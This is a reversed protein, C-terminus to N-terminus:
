SLHDSWWEVHVWKHQGGAILSIWSSGTRQKRWVAFLAVLHLSRRPHSGHSERLYQIRDLSNTHAVVDSYNDLYGCLCYRIDCWRVYMAEAFEVQKHNEEIGRATFFFFLQMCPITMKTPTLTQCNQLSDPLHTCFDLVVIKCRDGTIANTLFRYM